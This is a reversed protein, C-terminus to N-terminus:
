GGAKYEIRIAGNKIKVIKQSVSATVTIGTRMEKAGVIDGIDFSREASELVSIEVKDIGRLEKM